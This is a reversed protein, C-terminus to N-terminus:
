LDNEFGAEQWRPTSAIYYTPFPTEGKQHKGEKMMHEILKWDQGYVPEHPPMRRLFETKVVLEAHGVQGFSLQPNRIDYGEQSNVMTPNYVFDCDTKAISNFYFGVHEKLIIDDNNVWCFYKGTARKICYNIIHSGHGGKNKRFNYDIVDIGRRLMLAVSSRFSPHFQMQEFQNCGDGIIFLQFNNYKQEFLCEMMRWTRQPRGYCPLCITIDYETTM